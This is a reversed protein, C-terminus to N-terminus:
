KWILRGSESVTLNLKHKEAYDLIIMEIEEVKRGTIQNIEAYSAGSRWFGIIAIKQLDIREIIRNM